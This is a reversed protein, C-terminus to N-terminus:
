KQNQIRNSAEIYVEFNNRKGVCVVEVVEISGTEIEKYIIRHKANNFYLRKYGRLDIGHLLTLPQGNIKGDALDDLLGLAELALEQGKTNTEVLKSFDNEVEPFYEIQKM